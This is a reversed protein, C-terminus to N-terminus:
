QELTPSPNAISRDPLQNGLQYRVCLPGCNILPEQPTSDAVHNDRAIISDSVKHQAVFLMRLALTDSSDIESVNRGNRTPAHQVCRVMHSAPM